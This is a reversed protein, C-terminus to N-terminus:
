SKELVREDAFSKFVLTTQCLKLKIDGGNIDGYVPEGFLPCRDSCKSDKDYCCYQEKIKNLRKISLIGSISIKGVLYGSM